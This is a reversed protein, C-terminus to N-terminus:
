NNTQYDGDDEEKKLLEPFRSSLKVDFDRIKELIDNGWPDVEEAELIYEKCEGIITAMEEILERYEDERTM